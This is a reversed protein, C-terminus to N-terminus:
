SFCKHLKISWTSPALNYGGGLPIRGSRGGVAELRFGGAERLWLTSASDKDQLTRNQQWTLLNVGPPVGSWFRQGSKREGVAHGGDWGRDTRCTSTGRELHCM